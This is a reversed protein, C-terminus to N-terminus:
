TGLEREVERIFDVASIELAASLSLLTTLTPQRLGREMMSIFTRDLGSEEALKEQSLGVRERFRRLVLGFAVEAGRKRMSRISRRQRALRWPSYDVLVTPQKYGFAFCRIAVAVRTAVSMAESVWSGLRLFIGSSTHRCLMSIM